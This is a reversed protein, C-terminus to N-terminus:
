KLQRILDAAFIFSGNLIGMFIVDEDKLDHNMQDAMKQITEQIKEKSISVEFVKDLVKVKNM